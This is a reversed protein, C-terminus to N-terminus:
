LSNSYITNIYFDELIGIPNYVKICSFDLKNSFGKLYVMVTKKWKGVIKLTLINLIISCM